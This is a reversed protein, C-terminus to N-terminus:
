RELTAEILGHPESTAVFVQQPNDLAFPQLDVLL